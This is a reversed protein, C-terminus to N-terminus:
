ERHSFAHHPCRSSHLSIHSVFFSRRADLIWYRTDFINDVNLWGSVAIYYSSDVLYLILFQKVPITPQRNDFAGM